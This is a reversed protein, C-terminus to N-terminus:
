KCEAEGDEIVMQLLDNPLRPAPDGLKAALACTSKFNKYRKTALWLGRRMQDSHINDIRTRFLRKHEIGPGSTRKGRRRKRSEFTGATM